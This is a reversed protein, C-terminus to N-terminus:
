NGLGVKKLADRFTGIGLGTLVWTFWDDGVTVGPLDYGFAGEVVGIAIVMFAVIFTKYGDLMSLLRMIREGIFFGRKTPPALVTLLKHARRM